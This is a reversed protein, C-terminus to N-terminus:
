GMSAKARYGARVIKNNLAILGWIGFPFGTCCATTFPIIGVVCALGVLWGATLRILCLGGLMLLAGAGLNAYVVPPVVKKAVDMAKALMEKRQKKEDDTLKPDADIKEDNQVVAEDFTKDLEKLQMTNLAALGFTIAGFIILLIGPAKTKAHAADLIDEREPNNSYDDRRDDDYENM